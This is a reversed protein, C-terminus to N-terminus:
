DSVWLSPITMMHADSCPAPRGKGQTLLYLWHLALIPFPPDGQPVSIYLQSMAEVPSRPIDHSLIIRLTNDPRLTEYM